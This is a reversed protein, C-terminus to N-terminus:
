SLRFKGHNHSHQLGNLGISTSLLPGVGEGPKTEPL